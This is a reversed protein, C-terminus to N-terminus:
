PIRIAGADKIQNNYDNKFDGYFSTFDDIGLFM